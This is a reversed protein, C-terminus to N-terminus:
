AAALIELAAAHARRDGAALIRGDGDLSLPRGHWDSVIGGAGEIVPVLACWDYPKMDVEAVLDLLGMALLGYNYCDGGWVVDAVSGALRDFGPRDAPGFMAPSTAAMRAPALDACDRSRIVLGDHCSDRGAVGWWREGTGGADIVGLVPRGRFCLGILTGFTPKGTIFARTGDIPDLIWQWDAGQRVRGHEEGFIGHDPAEAELIRRMAAEAERDALTVPSHDPKVDVPVATRFYRRAEVRAADALRFALPLCAAADAAVSAAVSAPDATPPNIPM